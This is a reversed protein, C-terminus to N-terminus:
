LAGRGGRTMNKHKLKEEEKDIESWKEETKNFNARKFGLTYVNSILVTGKNGLKLTVM